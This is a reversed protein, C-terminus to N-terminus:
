RQRDLPKPRKTASTMPNEATAQNETIAMNREKTTPTGRLPRRARGEPLPISAVVEFVVDLPHCAALVCYISEKLHPSQPPRGQFPPPFRPASAFNPAPLSRLRSVVRRPADELRRFDASRFPRQSRRRLRPGALISRAVGFVCRVSRRLLPAAMVAVFVAAFACVPWSRLLGSPEACMRGTSPARRVPTRDVARPVYKDPQRRVACMRRTSPACVDSRRRVNMWGIICM